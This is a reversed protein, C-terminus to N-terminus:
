ILLGLGGKFGSVNRLHGVKCYSAYFRVAVIKEEEDGVVTKYDQLTEVHFVNKPLHDVAASSRRQQQTPANLVLDRMRREFSAPRTPPPSYVGAFSSRSSTREQAHERNFRQDQLKKVSSKVPPKYEMGLQFSSICPVTLFLAAIWLLTWTGSTSCNCSSIGAQRQTLEPRRRQM